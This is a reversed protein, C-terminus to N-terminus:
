DSPLDFAELGNDPVAGDVLDTVSTVASDTMVSPNSSVNVAMSLHRGRQFGGGTTSRDDLDGASTTQPQDIDSIIDGLKRHIDELSVDKRSNDAAAAM